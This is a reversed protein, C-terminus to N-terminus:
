KPAVSLLTNKVREALDVPPLNGLAPRNLLTALNKPDTLVKKLAPHNYGLPISSIQGYLDLLKNGDADVIYNGISKEYDAVFHVTRTDSFRDLEKMVAQSKPGPIATSVVPAAPEGPITPIHTKPVSAFSRQALNVAARSVQAKLVRGLM